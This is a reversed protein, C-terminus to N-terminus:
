GEVHAKLSELSQQYVALMLDAMEDPAADVVWTVHSGDGAPTVTITAEHSEIPVGDVISYTIARAADDKAVLKETITMGMTDLIRNDGEVRCSDMGPMWGAIGGFDGALAWVTDPSGNIDIEATRQAM